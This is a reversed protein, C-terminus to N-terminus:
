KKIINNSRLREDHDLADWVQRSILNGNYWIRQKQLKKIERRAYMDILAKQLAQQQLQEPSLEKIPEVVPEQTADVTSVQPLKVEENM